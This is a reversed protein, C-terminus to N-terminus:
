RLWSMIAKHDHVIAMVKSMEAQLSGQEIISLLLNLVTGIVLSAIEINSAEDAVPLPQASFSNCDAQIMASDKQQWCQCCLAMYLLWAQQVADSHSKLAVLKRLLMYRQVEVEYAKGKLSDRLVSLGELGLSALQVIVARLAQPKEANLQSMANRLLHVVCASYSKATRQSCATSRDHPSRAADFLPELQKTADALLENADQLSTLSM